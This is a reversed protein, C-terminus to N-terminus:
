GLRRSEFCRLDNTTPNSPHNQTDAHAGHSGCVVVSANVPDTANNQHNQDTLPSTHQIPNNWRLQDGLSSDQKTLALPISATHHIRQPRRHHDLRPPVNKSPLSTRKTGRTGRPRPNHCTRLKLTPKQNKNTSPLRVPTAPEIELLRRESPSRM